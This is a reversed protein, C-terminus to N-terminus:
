RALSDGLIRRIAAIEAEALDVHFPLGLVGDALKETVALAGSPCGAFAPERHCGRGWWQRTEVGHRSLAAIAARAKEAGIFVNFTSSVGGQEIGPALRLGDLGALADRYFALKQALAGRTRPWADLAALGVAAAYESLKANMAPHRVVRDREFGFNRASRIREVTTRDQCIVVGGEGVALPKTAHLSIVVPTRGAKATDFGAAADIVVPMGTEVAFRDWTEVPAPAGFPAVPLVAAVADGIVDLTERAREPELAWSEADVDAFWPELGAVRAAHATAVFTFSPMVCYRRGPRAVARLALALGLTGNAVCVVGERALGFKGALRREFRRLLPGDNTYRRNADIEALYPALAARDPLRPRMVPVAYIASASADTMKSEEPKAIPRIM